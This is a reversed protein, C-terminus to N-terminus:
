KFNIDESTFYQFSHQNKEYFNLQFSTSLGSAIKIHLIANKLEECYLHSVYKYTDGLYGEKTYVLPSIKNNMEIYVTAKSLDSYNLKRRKLKLYEIIDLSLLRAERVDDETFIIKHKLRLIFTEKAISSHPKNINFTPIPVVLFMSAGLLTVARCEKKLSLSQNGSQFSIIGFYEEYIHGYLKSHVNVDKFQINSVFNKEHIMCGTLMLFLISLTITLLYRM